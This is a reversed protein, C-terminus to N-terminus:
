RPDGKVAIRCKLDRIAFVFGSRADRATTRLVARPVEFPVLTLRSLAFVFGGRHCSFLLRLRATGFPKELVKSSPEVAFAFGGNSMAARM